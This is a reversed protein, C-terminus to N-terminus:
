FRWKLLDGNENINGVIMYWKSSVNGFNEAVSGDSLQFMAEEKSYSVTWLYGDEDQLIDGDYIERGAGDYLGSSLEFVFGIMKLYNIDNWTQKNIKTTFKISNDKLDILAVDLYKNDIQSYVRLKIM